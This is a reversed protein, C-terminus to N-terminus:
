HNDELLIKRLHRLTVAFEDEQMVKVEPKNLLDKNLQSLNQSISQLTNSSTEMKAPEPSDPKYIRKIVNLPHQTKVELLVQGVTSLSSSSVIHYWGNVSSDVKDGSILTSFLLGLYVEAVGILDQSNFSHHYVYILLPKHRHVVRFRDSNIAIEQSFDLKVHKLAPYERSPNSRVGEIEICFSVRDNGDPNFQFANLNRITHVNIVLANDKPVAPISDMTGVGCDVKVAKKLEETKTQTRLLPTDTLFSTYGPTEAEQREIKQQSTRVSYINSQDRYVTPLSDSKITRREELANRQKFFSFDLIEQCSPRSNPDFRLLNELLQQENRSLGTFLKDILPPGQINKLDEYTELAMYEEVENLDPVGLMEFMRYVKESHDVAQFLPTLSAFMEAFLCGLAWIDSTVQVALFDNGFLEEPPSYWFLDSRQSVSIPFARFCISSREEIFITQPSLELHGVGYSHLADVTAVLNKFLQQKQMYTLSSKLVEGLTEPEAEEIVIVEMEDGEEDFMVETAFVLGAKWALILADSRELTLTSRLFNHRKLLFHRNVDTKLCAKYLVTSADQRTERYIEFQRLESPVDKLYQRYSM